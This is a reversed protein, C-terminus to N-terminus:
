RETTDRQDATITDSTTTLATNLAAPGAVAAAVAPEPDPAVSTVTPHRRTSAPLSWVQPM